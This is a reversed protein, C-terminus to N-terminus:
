LVSRRTSFTLVADYFKQFEEFSIQGTNDVDIIQFLEEINNMGPISQYVEGNSDKRPLSKDDGLLQSSVPRGEQLLSSVVLKLEEIDIYGTENVDFINFYLRCQDDLLSYRQEAELIPNPKNDDENIDSQSHCLTVDIAGNVKKMEEKSPEPRFAIMTLLFDKM